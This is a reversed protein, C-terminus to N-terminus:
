MNQERVDTSDFGNTLPVYVPLRECSLLREDINSIFTETDDYEVPTVVTKM